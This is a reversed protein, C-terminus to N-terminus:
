SRPKFRFSWECTSEVDLIYQSAALGYLVHVESAAKSVQQDVVVERDNPRGEFYIAARHRCEEASVANATWSVDVDGELQVAQSRATGTGSFTSAGTSGSLLGSAVNLIFLSLLWAVAGVALGGLAFGVGFKFGSAVGISMRLDSSGQPEAISGSRSAGCSPCFRAEFPLEASCSACLTLRTTLPSPGAVRPM